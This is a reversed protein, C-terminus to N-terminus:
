SAPHLLGLGTKVPPSSRGEIHYLSEQKYQHYEEGGSPGVMLVVCGKSIIMPRYQLVVYIEVEETVIGTQRFGALMRSKVWQEAGKELENCKIRGCM